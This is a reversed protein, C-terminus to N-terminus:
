IVDANLNLWLAPRVCNYRVSVDDQRSAINGVRIANYQELGPSRLWWSCAPRGDAMYSTSTWAGRAVAYTTPACLKAMTGMFYRDAEEWSLLFVWDATTPGGNTSYGAFGNERGNPMDSLFIAAREEDNFANELFDTNLWNRLSCQEWTIDASVTNYPMADLAYRSLLLCRGDKMELIIWEIPEPGNGVNNDQEYRGLTVISGASRFTTVTGSGSEALGASFVAAMIVLLLIATLRRIQRM